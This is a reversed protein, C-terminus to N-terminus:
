VRVNMILTVDLMFVCNLCSINMSIKYIQCLTSFFLTRFINYNKLDRYISPKKINQIAQLEFIIYGINFLVIKQYWFTWLIQMKMFPQPSVSSWIGCFADPSWLNFSLKKFYKKVSHSKRNKKHHFINSPM